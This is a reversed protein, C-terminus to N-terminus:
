LLTDAFVNRGSTEYLHRIREPSLGAAVALALIGGTSTGALLDIKELFGPHASELRELLIVTILGRIGGGDMSLIRYLAM